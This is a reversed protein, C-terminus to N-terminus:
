GGQLAPSAVYGPAAPDFEAALEGENGDMRWIVYKKAKLEDFKAKAADTSAQDGHAWEIKDDGRPGMVSIKAM